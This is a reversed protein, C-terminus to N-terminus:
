PIGDDLAAGVLEIFRPEVAEASADANQEDDREEGKRRQFAELKQGAGAGDMDSVVEADGYGVAIHVHREGIGDHAARGREQRGNEHEKGAMFHRKGPPEADQAQAGADKGQGAVVNLVALEVDVARQGGHSGGDHDHAVGKEVAVAGPGAPIGDAVYAPEVDDVREGDVDDQQQSLAFGVDGIEAVAPFVAQEAAQAAEAGVAYGKPGHGLGGYRHDRGQTFCGDNETHEEGYKEKPFFKGRDFEKGDDEDSGTNEEHM